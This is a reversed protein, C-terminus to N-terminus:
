FTAAPVPSARGPGVLQPAEDSRRARYGTNLRSTPPSGPPRRLRGYYRKLRPSLVVGPSPLAAAEDVRGRALFPQHTGAIALVVSFAVTRSRSRAHSWTRRLRPACPMSWIVM